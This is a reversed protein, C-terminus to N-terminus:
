GALCSALRCAFIDAMRSIVEQMMRDLACRRNHSQKGSHIALVNDMAIDYADREGQPGRAAVVVTAVTANEKFAGVPQQAPKASYILSYQLNFAM